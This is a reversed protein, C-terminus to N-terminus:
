HKSEKERRIKKNGLMLDAVSLALGVTIIVGHYQGLLEYIPKATDDVVLAAGLPEILFAVALIAFIASSLLRLLKGKVTAGSFFLLVAPLLILLSAVVSSLPPRIIEIGAKAVIPTLDNTWLAAFISGAALALGLLGLRRKTTYAALLLAGFIVGAVILFSMIAM